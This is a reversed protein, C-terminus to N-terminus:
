VWDVFTDHAAALELYERGTAAIAEPLAAGDDLRDRVRARKWTAPTEGLDVRREIPALLDDADAAPVGLADLGRRAFEFLEAFIRSRDDTRTGDATVWALDADPGDQVARYFSDRAAAWPLEGLPHDAAVLGRLLGTVLAQFAVTDEVTPQAPIPRYEVRVSAAENGAAPEGAANRPISGGVVPRVWRWFTARKAHFEPHRDPYPREEPPTDSEFLTPGCVTDAAIRDFAAAPTAVDAPVRCKHDPDPLGANVSREFVPVRLEQPADFATETDVDEYYDAPLFPSNTALALVPGMTRTALRLYLPLAEADPVQLHPQISTAISEFLISPVSEVGPLNIWVAGGTRRLIDNDIACYRPNHHMYRAVRVGDYEDYTGFYARSGVASPVAWAGDLVLRLDHDALAARTEAVRDRLEAAQTAVGAGSAVDPETHLEINHVGLEPSRGTGEVVTEPVRTPRGDADVVVAEVELGVAFDDNDLRGAAADAAIAEAQERARRDFTAATETTLSTRVASLFTEDPRDPDPDGVGSGDSDSHGTGEGDGDSDTGRNSHGHGHGQDGDDTPDDDM